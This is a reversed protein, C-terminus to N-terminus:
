QIMLSKKVKALAKTKADEDKTQLEDKEIQATVQVPKPSSSSKPAEGAKITTDFSVNHNPNEVSYYTLFSWM